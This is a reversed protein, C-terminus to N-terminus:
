KEPPLSELLILYCAASFEKWFPGALLLLNRTKSDNRLLKQLEQVFYVTITRRDLKKLEEIMSSLSDFPLSVKAQREILERHFARFEQLVTPDLDFIEGCYEACLILAKGMSMSQSPLSKRSFDHVIRRTISKELANILGADNQRAQELKQNFIPLLIHLTEECDEPLFAYQWGVYRRFAKMADLYGLAMNRRAYTKDFLIFPGLNWHSRILTLHSPTRKPKRIMGVSELDVAIIEDAGLKQALQIPLNDYYGGDMYRVGDIERLKFAPFCASSALLYDCVMGKPIQEKRLEWPKLTPYEVTVLAYDIPSARFREEDLLSRINKELPTVDAGGKEFAELIFTKWVTSSDLSPLSAEDLINDMVDKSSINEWLRLANDYDGQVMLAGNLAGVSTGTVIDFPINLEILARWVGIQYAGRSGGGALVVATKPM